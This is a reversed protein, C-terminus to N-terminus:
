LKFNDFENYEDIKDSGSNTGAITATRTIYFAKYKLAKGNMDHLRKRIYDYSGKSVGYGHYQRLFLKLTTFSGIIELNKNQVIIM